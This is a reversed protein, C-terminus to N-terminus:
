ACAGCIVRRRRNGSAAPGVALTGQWYDDTWSISSTITVTGSAGSSVGTKGYICHGDSDALLGDYLETYGSRSYTPNFRSAAFPFLASDDAPVAVSPCIVNVSNGTGDETDFAVAITTYDADSVRVMMVSVSTWTDIPTFSVNGTVESADECYMIQFSRTAAGWNQTAGKQTWGSPVSSYRNASGSYCHVFAILLDGSGVVGPPTVVAPNQTAGNEIYGATAGDISVAM